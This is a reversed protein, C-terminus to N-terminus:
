FTRSVSLVLTGTDLDKLKQGPNGGPPAVFNTTTARYWETKANTDVYAVGFVWGNVDKTVGIKWDSYSHKDWNKVDTYGYHLAVGWGNDLPINANLDYYITGKSNGPASTYCNTAAAAGASTLGCLPAVPTIAPSSLGTMQQNSLGFYDSLAYSVKGSFWKYSAGLYVEWNNYKKQQPGANPAFAGPYYYYLTGIDLTLDKAVEFKYGGYFDWELGAGNLYQNGSVNSAWTGLYLGSAHSYDMGAQVAPLKFTQSIGRFRYDSVLAANATFTHPSQEAAPAAAQALVVAPATFLSAVATAVLLKRM